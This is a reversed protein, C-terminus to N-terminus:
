PTRVRLLRRLQYVFQSWGPDWLMPWTLRLIRWRDVTAIDNSREVDRQFQARGGHYAFGLCEVGVFAWEWALDLHYTRTAAKVELQQADPALGIDTLRDRAVYEFGSDSGDGRLDRLVRVAKHRGRYRRRDADVRELEDLFDEDRFRLEISKRRLTDENAPDALDTILRAPTVCCIGDVEQLHSDLWRRTRVVEIGPVEPSTRRAPVLLQVNSPALREVGLLHLASWRTVAAPYGVHALAAALRHIPADPHGPLLRVASNDFPARWGEDDTRRQYTARSIGCAHASGPTAVGHWGAADRVLDGWSM